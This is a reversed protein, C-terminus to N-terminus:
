IDFQAVLAIHDSAYVVGSACDTATLAISSLQGSYASSAWCYDIREVLGWSPFTFGSDDPYLQAWSDTLGAESLQSLAPNDPTANMDGILVGAGNSNASMFELTEPINSQLCDQSLAFHTNYLSFADGSELQVEVWQTIRQNTDGTCDSSLQKVAHNLIPLRSIVSLGEWLGGGYDMAQDTVIQAEAYAPNQNQLLTLIQQGTDMSACNPPPPPYQAWFQECTENYYFSASPDYRIESLGILDPNALRIAKVILPLRVNWGLHDNYNATNFEMITLM